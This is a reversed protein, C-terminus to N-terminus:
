DHKLSNGFIRLTESDSSYTQWYKILEDRKVDFPGKIRQAHRGSVRYSVAKLPAHRDIRYVITVHRSDKSWKAAFANAATDLTESVELLPGINRGTMADKLYLHFDDYGLEGRGHATIAFKGDPSIGNGVTVYEHPGYEYNSTARAVAIPLVLASVFLAVRSAIMYM